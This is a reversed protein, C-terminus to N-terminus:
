RHATQADAGRGDAAGRPLGYRELIEDAREPTLKDFLEGDVMM